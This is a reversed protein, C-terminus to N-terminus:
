RSSRCYVSFDTEVLGFADIQPRFFCQIPKIEDNTPLERTRDSSNVLQTLKTELRSAPARM